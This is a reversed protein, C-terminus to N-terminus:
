DEKIENTKLDTIAKTLNEVLVKKNGLRSIKLGYKENLQIILDKLDENKM